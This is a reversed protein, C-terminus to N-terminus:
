SSVRCCCYCRCCCRCCSGRIIPSLRMCPPPRWFPERNAQPFVPPQNPRLRRPRGCLLYRGDPTFTPFCAVPEHGAPAAAAAALAGPPLYFEDVAGTHVDVRLLRGRSTSVAMFRRDPSFTLSTPVESAELARSLDVSQLESRLNGPDYIHIRRLGQYTAFLKGEPEYAVCPRYTYCHLVATPKPEHLNFVRIAGDTSATLLQSRVPHVQLGVGPCLSAELPVYKVYRNETLDWGRLAYKEAKSASARTVCVCTRSGGHLFRLLDVGYKKSHMAKSNDAKALTYLHLSEDDGGAVLTEGKADWELSNVRECKDKFARVLRLSSMSEDTLKLRGLIRYRHVDTM